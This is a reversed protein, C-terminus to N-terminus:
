VPVTSRAPTLGTLPTSIVVLVPWSTCSRISLRPFWDTQVVIPNPCVDSLAVDPIAAETTAPAATTAPAVDAVSEDDGDGCASAVLALVALAALWKPAKRTTKM